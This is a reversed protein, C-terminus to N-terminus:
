HQHHKRLHKMANEIAAEKSSATRVHKPIRDDNWIVFLGYASYKAKEVTCFRGTNNETIKVSGDNSFELSFNKM